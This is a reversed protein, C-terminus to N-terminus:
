CFNKIAETCSSNLMWNPPIQIPTLCTHNKMDIMKTLANLYAVIIKATLAPNSSTKIKFSVSINEDKNKSHSFIQGKHSLTILKTIKESSVFKIKVKENKFYNPTNKIKNIIEAKNKNTCVYCLRIHRNENSPKGRKILRVAKKNPITYQVANIIGDINKLANTHGLSVGKGYFCECSNFFANFFVRFVSFLGPDWGCSIIASTQNQECTKKIKKYHSIIKKHTDFSDIINFYKALENSQIPLDKDSGGCMIMIDIKNIFKVYDEYPCTNPKILNRRSFIKVLNYKSNNELEKEVAKGLNGYGVIGVNIM